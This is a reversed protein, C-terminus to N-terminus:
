AALYQLLHNTSRLVVAKEFHFATKIKLWHEAPIIEAVMLKSIIDPNCEQHFRIDM